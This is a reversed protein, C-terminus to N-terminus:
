IDLMTCRTKIEDFYEGSSTRVAVVAGCVADPVWLMPEKPGPLHRIRLRSSVLHQSRFAQIAAMDRRDDAPGRSEFTVSEVGLVDLEMSLRELCRRRRREEREHSDCSRVVVLHELPLSGVTSIIVARRGRQEDRWHVKGRLGVRLDLMAERVSEVVDTDAIAAALIYVGPDRTRDSQSEDVFAVWAM